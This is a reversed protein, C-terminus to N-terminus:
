ILWLYLLREMGTNCSQHLVGPQKNEWVFSQWEGMCIVALAGMCIVAVAGMCIVAVRGYLDSGRHRHLDERHRRQEAHTRSVVCLM